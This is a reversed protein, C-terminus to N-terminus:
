KKKYRLEGYLSRNEFEDLDYSANTNSHIPEPEKKKLKDFIIGKWGNAMCEDILECIAKDGYELANNEVKRLLAKLGQEKYSEKRETKYTLWETLKAQLSESINYDDVFLSFLNEKKSKEKNVKGISDKGIRVQTDMNSVNQICQTYSKNEDLSLMAKETQYKTPTFRDKQIYNHIRWHKIVVVGSDFPILFKKAILLKIDDDKCGVNRMISKPNNIFGEDDGRMSLHFYLLQSSQPMDLFADSDIITKAFMRREAM